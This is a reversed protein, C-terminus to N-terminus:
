KSVVPPGATGGAAPPTNLHHELKQLIKKLTEDRITEYRAACPLDPPPETEPLPPPEPEGSLCLPTRSLRFSLGTIDLEPFRRQLERLLPRQKAQLIQIWGPHDTEIRAVGRVLAAIRSHSAAVPISQATVASEWANFLRAYGRATELAQGDFFAALLEGAKKM